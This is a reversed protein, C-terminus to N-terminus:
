PNNSGLMWVFTTIQNASSESDFFTGLEQVPEMASQSKEEM